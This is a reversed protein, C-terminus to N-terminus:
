KNKKKKVVKVIITAVAGILVGAGAVSCCVILPINPKWEPIAKIIDAETLEDTPAIGEFSKQPGANEVVAKATDDWNKDAVTHKNTIVTEPEYTETTTYSEVNSYNNDWTNSGKRGWDGCDIAACDEPVVIVNKEGYVHKTGEDIHIGRIHYANNSFPSGIGDIYNESIITNPMDGITYIAGADSLTTITNIFKNYMITNNQMTTSAVGPVVADDDGNMNWWGWGLSIGSYTTNEVQNHVFKLGDVMYVMVGAVGWFLRSTDKFLNNEVLINTCAGETKADWKEKDTLIGYNSDKDGIYEHQPHGILLTAGATDFMANGTVEIDVCDNVLSLGDNGTHAFVNDIFKLNQASNVMVAAPGVDYARYIYGHWDEQAYAFLAAAGQNTARGHSGDVDYLNWDSHEFTLGEFSINYVRNELSEGQIDILTELEPVVVDATKLDENERPIYYLKKETKDFYFEGPEELWEFVNYVMNNKKFQYENGWGLTQAIAGYPMQLKAVLNLGSKELHDVCVITTNWRTQTMLEIDEQNRTKVSIANHKFKVGDSRVGDEWAWDASGKKIEYEGVAGKGKVVNSTMYCREGNVYLSRLKDDRDYSISFVGNGEDTWEGTVKKGGSIVPNAGQSAVYRIQCKDSGSDSVDFTIAEDLEYTGDAIEVVIDGKTKDLTKVYEKADNITAFVNDGKKNQDVYIHYAVNMDKNEKAFATTCPIALAVVMVLAVSLFKKM